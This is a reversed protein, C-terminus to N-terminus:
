RGGFKKGFNCFHAQECSVKFDELLYDTIKTLKENHKQTKYSRSDLIVSLGAM